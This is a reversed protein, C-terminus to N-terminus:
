SCLSIHLASGVKPIHQQGVIRRHNQRISLRKMMPWKADMWECAQDMPIGDKKSTATVMIYDQDVLSRTPLAQNSHVHHHPLAGQIHCQNRLRFIPRHRGGEVPEQLLYLFLDRVEVFSMKGPDGLRHRIAVPQWSFQELDIDSVHMERDPIYQWSISSQEPKGNDTPVNQSPNGPIFNCPQGSSTKLAQTLNKMEQLAEQIILLQSGDIGPLTGEPSGASAKGHPSVTPRSDM